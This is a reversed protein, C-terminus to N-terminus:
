DTALMHTYCQGARKFLSTLGLIMCNGINIFM